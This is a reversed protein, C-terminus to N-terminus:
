LACRANYFVKAYRQFINEAFAAYNHTTLRLDIGYDKTLKLDFDDGDTGVGKQKRKTLETFYRIGTALTSHVNGLKYDHRLRAETTFANYYDRDVQRPNYSNLALNFTDPINGANLFQVSNRQGFLAHSTIELSTADSIKYKFLLAPINILPQFFNRSRGSQQPDAAFQEDTLGGAIQQVYDM